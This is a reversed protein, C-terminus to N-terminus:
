SGTGPTAATRAANDRHRPPTELGPPVCIVPVHSLRVLNETTSGALLRRLGRRGHTSCILLDAGSRDTYDVIAQPVNASVLAKYHVNPGTEAALEKLERESQKLESIEDPAPLPSAHPSGGPLVKLDKTVHLLTLEAGFREAWQRAVPLARQSAESFDTTVVIKM